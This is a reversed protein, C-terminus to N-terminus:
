IAHSVLLQFGSDHPFLSTCGSLVAPHSKLQSSHADSTICLYKGATVVLLFKKHDLFGEQANRSLFLM